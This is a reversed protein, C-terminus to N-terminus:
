KKTRKLQDYEDRTPLKQMYKKLDAMKKKQKEVYAKLKQTEDNDEMMAKIRTEANKLRIKLKKETEVRKFLQRELDENDHRLKTNIPDYRVTGDGTGDGM